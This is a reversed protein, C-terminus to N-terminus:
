HFSATLSIWSHYTLHSVPPILSSLRDQAKIGLLDNSGRASPNWGLYHSSPKCTMDIRIAFVIWLPGHSLVVSPHCIQTLWPSLVSWFVSQRYFEKEEKLFLPIITALKDSPSWLLLSCSDHVCFIGLYLPTYQGLLSVRWGSSENHQKKLQKTVQQMFIQAKTAWFPSRYVKQMFITLPPNSPRIQYKAGQEMRAAKLPEWKMSSYSSHRSFLLANYTIVQQLVVM